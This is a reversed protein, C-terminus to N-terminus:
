ECIFQSFLNHNKYIPEDIVNTKYLFNPPRELFRIKIYKKLENFIINTKELNTTINLSESKLDLINVCNMLYYIFDNTSEFQFKNYFKLNGNEIFIIHFHKQNIQTFLKLKEAHHTNLAYDLFISSTPKLNIQPYQNQFLADLEKEITFITYCNTFKQKTYKNICRAKKSTILDLYNELYNENFLPEPILSSQTVDISGLVKQYKKTLDIETNLIERVQRYTFDTNSDIVIHKIKEFSQKVINFIIYSFNHSDIYFALKLNSNTEQEIENNGTAM